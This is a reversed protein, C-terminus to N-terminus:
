GIQRAWLGGANILHETVVPGKETELLWSNDARQSISLVRNHQIVDAGRKRAAGAYAHTAGHPDLNGEHPDFLAGTLGAPDIIPVMEAAEAPSVLRAGDNGMYRHWALEAKLWEAREPTGALELGGTLHLGVRQGSEEEVTRYMSITYAQLRAIVPDSNIAHFGGAAHWSSGATLEGREIVAVDTLGRLTLHYLISCGVIGGGIVVVRYQDKM